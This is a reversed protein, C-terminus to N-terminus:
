RDGFLYQMITVDKWQGRIKGVENQVGVITYGLSENYHISVKNDSQIRALLHHYGLQECRNMLHKKMRTGHGKKLYDPDCYVSTEGTTKYGERDSYKKIIGWVVTNSGDRMVWLEERESKSDLFDQYYSGTKEELDMTAIGIYYNYIEAIRQCDTPSAIIIDM